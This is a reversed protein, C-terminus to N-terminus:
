FFILRIESTFDKIMNNTFIGNMKEDILKSNILFNNNITNNNLSHDKIFLFYFFIIKIFIVKGGLLINLNGINSFLFM